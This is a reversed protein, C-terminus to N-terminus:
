GRGASSWSAQAVEAAGCELLLARVRDADGHRVHAGLLLAGRAVAEQWRQAQEPSLGAGELVSAIRGAAHGAAEGLDAALPGASVIPGIGPLVIAIAALVHGGIEGLRAAPRSDEIEAGPTAELEDALTGEVQHTAAVVSLDSRGLGISRLRSAAEAATTRDQFLALVLPHPM